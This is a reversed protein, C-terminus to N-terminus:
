LIFFYYHETRFYNRWICQVIGFIGSLNASVYDDWDPGRVGAEGAVAVCCWCLWLAMIIYICCMARASSRSMAEAREGGAIISSIGDSNVWIPWGM